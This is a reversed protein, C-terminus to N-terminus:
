RAEKRRRYWQVSVTLVLTVLFLLVSGAFALGAEARAHLPATTPRGDVVVEGGLPALAGALTLLTTSKGAGNPGVLVSIEGARVALDIEHVVAMSGYGASLKRAELLPVRDDGM